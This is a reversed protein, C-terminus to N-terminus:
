RAADTGGSQPRPLPSVGSAGCDSCEYQPGGEPHTIEGSGNCKECVTLVHEIWANVAAGVNPMPSSRWLSCSCTARDTKADHDCIIGTIWHERLRTKIEDIM